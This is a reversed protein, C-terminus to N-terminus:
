RDATSRVAHELDDLATALFRNRREELLERTLDPRGQSSITDAFWGVDPPTSLAAVVDWYRSTTPGAVLKPEWGALVDSAADLGFRM